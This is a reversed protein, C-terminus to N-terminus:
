LSPNIERFEVDSLTEALEHGGSVLPQGDQTAMFDIAPKLLGALERSVLKPADLAQRQIKAPLKPALLLTTRARLLTLRHIVGEILFLIVIVLALCKGAIMLEVLWSGRCERLVRIEHDAQGAGHIAARLWAGLDINPRVSFRLLATGHSLGKRTLLPRIHDSLDRLLDNQLTLAFYYYRRLIIQGATNANSEVDVMLRLAEHLFLLPLRQGDALVTSIRELFIIEDQKIPRGATLPDLAARLLARLAYLRPVLEFNLQIIAAGFQWERARFTTLLDETLRGGSPREIDGSQWVLGIRDLDSEALGLSTGITQVNFKVSEFQCRNFILYLATCDAFDTMFFKTDNFTAHHVSGQSFNCYNLTSDAFMNESFTQHVMGCHSFVSSRVESMRFECHDLKTKDFECGAIRASRLDAVSFDCDVFRCNEFTAGEFESREFSCRTFSCGRFLAGDFACQRANLGAAQVDELTTNTFDSRNALSQALARTGAEGLFLRQGILEPPPM